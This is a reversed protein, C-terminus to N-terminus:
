KNPKKGPTLPFFMLQYQYVRDANEDNNALEVIKDKFQKTEKCIIDYTRESIGLTISSFDHSQAALKMTTSKALNSYDFYFRRKVTHSIEEGAKIKKETIRYTGDNGKAILGLRELLQISKRAQARTIPPSLIRSLQVYDDKCPRLGIFARVASHYWKSFYEYKDKRLLHAEPAAVCKSKLMQEYFYAREEDNKACDYSVSNEFYEAEAKTHHLTKSFKHCDLLPLKKKGKMVNFLLARNMGGVMRGFVQYSFNPNKEKKEDYCKRLYARFDTYDFINAV